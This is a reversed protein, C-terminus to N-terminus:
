GGTVPPFFAVEDGQRLANAPSAMEQNVAIRVLSKDSFAKAYAGGRAKLHARLASVTAVDAPLEIEEAGAGLQERLSAFFLIRIKL